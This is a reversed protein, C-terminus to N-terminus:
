SFLSETFLPIVFTYKKRSVNFKYWFYGGSIVKVKGRLGPVFTFNLYALPMLFEGM